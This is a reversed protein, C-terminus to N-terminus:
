FYFLFYILMQLDGLNNVVQGYQNDGSFLVSHCATTSVKKSCLRLHKKKKEEMCTHSLKFVFLILTSFLRSIGASASSRLSLGLFSTSPGWDARLGWLGLELHTLDM